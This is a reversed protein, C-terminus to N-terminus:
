FYEWENNIKNFIGVEGTDHNKLFLGEEMLGSTEGYTELFERFKPKWNDIYANKYEPTEKLGYSTALSELRYDLQTMFQFITHRFATPSSSRGGIQDIFQQIDKDTPRTGQVAVASAFAISYVGALFQTAAAGKLGLNDLDISSYDFNDYDLATGTEQLLLDEKTTGVAYSFDFADALSKAGELLGGGWRMISGPVGLSTPNNFANKLLDIGMNASEAAGAANQVFDRALGGAQPGTMATGVVGQENTAFPTVQGLVPRGDEYYMNGAKDWFVEAPQGDVLVSRPSRDSPDRAWWPALAMKLNALEQADYV